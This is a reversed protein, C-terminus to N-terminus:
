TFSINENKSTLENKRKSTEQIADQEHQKCHLLEGHGGFKKPFTKSGNCKNSECKYCKIPKNYINVYKGNKLYGVM